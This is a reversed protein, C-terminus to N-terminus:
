FGAEVAERGDIAEEGTEGEAMVGSVGEERNEGDVMVQYAEGVEAVGSGAAVVLDVRVEVVLGVRVEVVLDVRVEVVLGVRVEVPSEEEVVEM